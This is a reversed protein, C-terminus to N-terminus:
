RKPKISLTLGYVMDRDSYAEAQLKRRTASLSLQKGNKRWGIGVQHTGFRTLREQSWGSGRWGDISSRIVNWSLAQGSSAAFLVWRGRRPDQAVGSMKGMLASANVSLRQMTSPEYASGFPQIDIDEVKVMPIRGAKSRSLSLAPPRSDAVAVTTTRVPQRPEALTQIAPKPRAEAASAIQTVQAPAAVATIAPGGALPAVAGALDIPSPPLAESVAAAPRRPADGYRATAIPADPDIAAEGGALTLTGDYPAPAQTSLATATTAVVGLGAAVLAGKIIVSGRM